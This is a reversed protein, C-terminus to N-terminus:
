AHTALLLKRHRQTPDDDSEDALMQVNRFAHGLEEIQEQQQRETGNAEFLVTRSV